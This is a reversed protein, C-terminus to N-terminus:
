HGVFNARGPVLGYSLGIKRAHEDNDDIVGDYTAQLIREHNNKPPKVLGLLILNKATHINHRKKALEKYTLQKKNEVNVRTIYEAATRDTQRKASSSAAWIVLALILLATTFM